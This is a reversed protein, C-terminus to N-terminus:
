IKEEAELAQLIGQLMAAKGPSLKCMRKVLDRQIDSLGDGEISVPKEKDREVWGNILGEGYAVTMADDWGMLYAPTTQLAEAFAAIKSQTIDTIGLEIKNISARSKYDLKKALEDQTMDREIRLRKIRDGIGSM